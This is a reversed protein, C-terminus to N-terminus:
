GADHMPLGRLNKVESEAHRVSRRLRRRQQALRLLAASSCLVGFLVGAAFFLLFAVSKPLEWVLFALDVEVRGPNLWVFLAAMLLVAAFVLVLTFTRLM